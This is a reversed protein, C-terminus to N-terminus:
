CNTKIPIERIEPDRVNRQYGSHHGRGRIQPTSQNRIQLHQLVLRVSLNGRSLTVTTPPELTPLDARATLSRVLLYM